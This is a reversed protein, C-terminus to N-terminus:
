MGGSIGFVRDLTEDILGMLGWEYTDSQVWRKVWPKKMEYGTPSDSDVDHTELLGLKIAFEECVDNTLKPHDWKIQDDDSNPRFNQGYILGLRASLMQAITHRTIRKVVFEDGPEPDRL